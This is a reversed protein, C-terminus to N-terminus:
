APAPQRVRRKSRVGRVLPFRLTFVAGPAADGVEIRGGYARCVDAV